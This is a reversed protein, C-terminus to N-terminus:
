KEPLRTIPLGFDRSCGCKIGYDGLPIFATVKWQSANMRRWITVYNGTESNTCQCDPDPTDWKYTGSTYGTNGSAFVHARRPKWTIAFGRIAFLPAFRDRIKEIGSVPEMSAPQSIVATDSLYSMWGELGRESTARAFAADVKLLEQTANINQASAQSASGLLFGLVCVLPFTRLSM